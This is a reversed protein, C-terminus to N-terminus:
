NINISRVMLETDYQDMFGHSGKANIQEVALIKKLLSCLHFITNVSSDLYSPGFTLM